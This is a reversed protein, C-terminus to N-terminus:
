RGDHQEGALGLARSVAGMAARLGDAAAQDQGGTGGAVAALVNLLRRADRPHDRWYEEPVFRFACALEGDYMDGALPEQQLVDLAAPIVYEPYLLQRVARCWDEVTFRMMHIARVRTYWLELPSSGPEAPPASLGLTREIEIFTSAKM